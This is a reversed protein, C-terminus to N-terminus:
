NGQAQRLSKRAATIVKVEGDDGGQLRLCLCPCLFLVPLTFTHCRLAATGHFWAGLFTESAPLTPPLKAVAEVGGTKGLGSVFFCLPPDGEEGKAGHHDGGRENYPTEPPFHDAEGQATWWTLREVARSGRWLFFL